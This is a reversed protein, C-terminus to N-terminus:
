SRCNQPIMLDSRPVVQLLMEHFFTEVLYMSQAPISTNGDIWQRFFGARKDGRYQLAYNSIVNFSM